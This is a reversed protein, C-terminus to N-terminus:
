NPREPRAPKPGPKHKSLTRGTLRELGEIWAENGCPRGTNTHRRLRQLEADEVGGMLFSSWDPDRSLMPGVRVLVDDAGALHARASSWRWDEPRATLGARVPNLEVYRACAALHDEDMVFSHFRGQWLYGSWGQM